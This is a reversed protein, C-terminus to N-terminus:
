SKVSSTTIAQTPAFPCDSAAPAVVEEISIQSMQVEPAVLPPEFEPLPEFEPCGGDIIYIEWRRLFLEFL